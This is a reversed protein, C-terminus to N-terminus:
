AAHRWQAAAKRVVALLDSKLEKWLALEAEEAAPISATIVDAVAEILGSFLEVPVELTRIHHDVTHFLLIEIEYRSEYWTMLCYLATEVMSAELSARTNPALRDYQEAAQPFRQYYLTLAPQTIDGITEAARVLSSELLALRTAKDM